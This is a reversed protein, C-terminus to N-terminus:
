DLALVYGRIGWDGGAAGIFVLGKWAIPASSFFEGKLPDGGKILWLQKGTRADLAFVRGDSTGRFIRGDLYAVGRNVPYVEDQMPKSGHRWPISCNAANLAVTTHATAAYLTEGIVILGSHFAGDDGLRAECARKLTAVNAPTISNVPSFRQGDYGNNYTPWAAQGGATAPAAVGFLTACVALTAA